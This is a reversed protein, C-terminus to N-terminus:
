KNSIFLVELSTLNTFQSAFVTLTNEVLLNNQTTEEEQLYNMCTRCLVNINETPLEMAIEM